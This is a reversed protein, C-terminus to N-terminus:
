TNRIIRALGMTWMVVTKDPHQAQLTELDRIRPSGTTTFFLNDITSGTVGDVYGFKFSVVDYVESSGLNNVRDIFYNVKNSWGPNPNPLNHFEFHWNSRDYKPDYIIQGPDLGRDCAYPRVNPNPTGPFYNWLCNLGLNINDGVSTHRFLVRKARAAPLYSDPIQDFLEVANHDIVFGQVGTSCSAGWHAAVLQVDVVNVLGDGNVDYAPNIPPSAGWDTIVLNIDDLDIQCDSNVDYVPDYPYGQAAAGNALTLLLIWLFGFVVPKRM